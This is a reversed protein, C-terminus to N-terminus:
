LVTEEYDDVLTPQAQKDTEREVIRKKLQRSVAKARESLFKDYDDDWVGFRPLNMILHTQMTEALHDNKTFEKMYRSPSKAQIKRKNLFDDVITINLVHNIEDEDRGKNRLYARPFFHHYNKSNVQKLWDNSIHIISNDVFSKPLQYAYVCLIAKVYSRGASFWGNERIFSPSTDIPWDYEPLHDELILDIRKVDQALKGEVGSSYRGSLACRWFFDELYRQMDGTPRDPHHHFFYAFPVILANYPLLQSVPIRFYGRFYDVAAKIADAAKDWVDIFSRKDLNLIVSRKCEGSLILSVTQLVSADSVTEYDVSELDDILGDFKESLDFDRNPEFTKAVMIEFLSLPKGGVNIRTFIETAANIPAERIQIVSFNYSEIRRKYEQLNEHHKRPYKALLTLGGYLLEKIRILERPERESIDTIVVQDGENAGLDVYMEAYDDIRGGEREVKVGKLSAFLSTLRQQGDLVFDVFDGEDPEPLEVGGIRRVMRFRERTKWLILTGIPYGKVISDILSASKKMDWVFDRQFQPIQIQGKEIDSLLASFTRSQPEPLRM